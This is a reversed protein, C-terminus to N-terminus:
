GTEQMLEEPVPLLTSAARINNLGRTLFGAGIGLRPNCCPSLIGRNTPPWRLFGGGGSEV